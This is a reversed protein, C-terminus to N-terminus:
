GYVETWLTGEEPEWVNGDVLSEWNKGNHHVREGVQYADHAGTPQVWQPYGNVVKPVEKWLVGKTAEPNYDEQTTHKQIAWYNVGNYSRVFGKAVEEGAVWEKAEYDEPLGENEWLDETNDIYETFLGLKEMHALGKEFLTEVMLEYGLFLAELDEVQTGEPTTVNGEEDVVPPTNRIVLIRVTTDIPSPPEIFSRKVRMELEWKNASVIKRFQTMELTSIINEATQRTM